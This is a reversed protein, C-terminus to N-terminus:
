RGVEAMVDPRVPVAISRAVRADDAFDVEHVVRDDPDALYARQADVQLAPVSGAPVLPDTTVATREPGSLVLVRGDADLAVVHEDTDDV